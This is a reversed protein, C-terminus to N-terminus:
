QEGRANEVVTASQVFTSDMFAVLIDRGVSSNGVVLHLQAPAYEDEQIARMAKQGVGMAEPVSGAETQGGQVKRDSLGSDRKGFGNSM